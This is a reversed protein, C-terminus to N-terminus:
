SSSMDTTHPFLAVLQPEEKLIKLLEAPIELDYEQRLVNLMKSALKLQMEIESRLAKPLKPGAEASHINLWCVIIIRTVEEAREPEAMRPWCQTVCCNLAKSAAAIAPGHATAFPDTMVAAIMSM